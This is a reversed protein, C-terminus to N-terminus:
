RIYDPIYKMKNRPMLVLADSFSPLEVIAEENDKRFREFRTIDIASEDMAVGQAQHNKKIHFSECFYWLEQYYRTTNTKKWNETAVPGGHRVALYPFFMQEKAPDPKFDSPDIKDQCFVPQLCFICFILTVVGKMTIGM